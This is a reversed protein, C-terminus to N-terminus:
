AKTHVKEMEKENETEKGRDRERQVDREREWDRINRNTGKWRQRRTETDRPSAQFFFDEGEGDKEGWEGM